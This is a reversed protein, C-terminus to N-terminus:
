VLTEGPAASLSTEALDLEHVLRRHLPDDIKHALRLRYLENREADLAMLRLRQEDSALKALRKAEDGEEGGRDIRERYREIIRSAAESETELAETSAQKLVKEIQRIAAEAATKRADRERAAGAGDEDPKLERAIIPLAISATALSLLIVGMAIFIALQRAPFPKGGALVFPLTLVGALTIAGKVGSFAAFLLARMSPRSWSTGRLFAMLQTAEFSILTWVFRLALLAGTIAAVYGAILWPSSAGIDHSIAPVSAIIGPLQEGLLVFIIGNLAVELMEWIASQRMRTVAASHRILHAYHTSIGAAVAALVGSLQLREAALYAAFPILLSILVPTGPEEGIWRTLWRYVVSSGMAIVIGVVIGGAAMEIFSVGADTISFDGTIAAAVAFNFCVLGSADNFLSEGELIHLLRPPVPKGSAISSVAVPDTPSIIAGIAFAVALPVAPILEGIFFGIGIVTFVVLGLALTLIPKWDRRLADKPIRWGDLFLLPPIFILFFIHPDLRVKFGIMSLAAGMAIQLLPLPLKVPSFRVLIRSVAVALLFFLVLTVASM